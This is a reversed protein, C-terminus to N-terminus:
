DCVQIGVHTRPGSWGESFGLCFCLGVVSARYNFHVCMQFCTCACGKSFSRSWLFKVVYKLFYCKWCPWKGVRLNSTFELGWTHLRAHVYVLRDIYIHWCIPDLTYVQRDSYIYVHMYIYMYVACLDNLNTYMLIMACKCCWLAWYLYTWMEMGKFTVGWQDRCPGVDNVGSLFQTGMELRVRELRLQLIFYVAKIIGGVYVAWASRKPLGSSTRWAIRMGSNVACTSVTGGLGSGDRYSKLYM